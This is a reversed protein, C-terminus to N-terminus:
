NIKYIADRATEALKLICKGKKIVLVTIVWQLQDTGTLKFNM